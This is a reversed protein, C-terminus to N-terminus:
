PLEGVNLAEGKINKYRSFSTVKFKTRLKPKGFGMM